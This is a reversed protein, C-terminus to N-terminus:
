DETWRGLATEDSDNSAVWETGTEAVEKKWFPARSKLFDMLFEAAEFADKRHKSATLVLVIEDGLQLQGVRHIVKCGDLAWRNCAEAMMKGIAKETMEPYHEIYLYCLNQAPNNRVVGSFSVVAGVEPCTELLQRYEEALSFPEEQIAIQM